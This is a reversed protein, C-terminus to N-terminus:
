RGLDFCLLIQVRNVPAVPLFFFSFLKNLLEGESREFHKGSTGQINCPNTCHGNQVTETRGGIIDVAYLARAESM